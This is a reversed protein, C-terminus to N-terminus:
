VKLTRTYKSRDFQMEKSKPDIRARGAVVPMEGGVVFTEPDPRTVVQPPRVNNIPPNEGYYYGATAPDPVPIKIQFGLHGSVPKLFSQPRFEKQPAWYVNTFSTRPM